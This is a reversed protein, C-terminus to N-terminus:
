GKLSGVTLGERFYRQLFSFIVIFPAVALATMALEASIYPVSAASHLGLLYQAQAPHAQLFDLESGLNYIFLQLPYLNSNSVFLLANFYENWYAFSILVGLTALAPRMMPLVILFFIRYEGAGDVKAAEIVEFNLRSMYGKAILVTFPTVLGPVIMAWITNGLHLYRTILIFFPVLGGNFLLTFFVVFTTVRSLAYDRRSIVYALMTTLLLSAVTGICTVVATVAYSRLLAGPFKFVFEYAATSIQSPVFSIGQTTLSREDTLSGMIILVFPIAVSVCVMILIGHVVIGVPGRATFPIRERVGGARPGSTGTPVGVDGQGPGATARPQDSSPLM